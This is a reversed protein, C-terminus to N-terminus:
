LGRGGAAMARSSYDYGFLRVLVRREGGGLTWCARDVGKGEGWGEGSTWCTGFDCNFGELM